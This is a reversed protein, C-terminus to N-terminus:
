RTAALALGPGDRPDAYGFAVGDAILIASSDGQVAWSPALKHGLRGLGGRVVKALPRAKEYRVSDPVFGHHYRPADVAEDLTLKRDILRRVLLVLTTPITDGGPTGLVLVPAGAALVLTPAMSSTTRRGPVPQNAGVSAFSAVANGLLVGTGPAMLKAGFSASLTTTLSVVMGDRDAVSLHTTHETEALAEKFLAHV